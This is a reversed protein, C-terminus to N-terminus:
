KLILKKNNALEELGKDYINIIEDINTGIDEFIKFDFYDFRKTKFNSFQRNFEKLDSHKLDAFYSAIIGGYSYLKTENFGELIAASIYMSGDEDVKIQDVLESTRKYRENILLNDELTSLYEVSNFNDYVDLYYNKLGKLANEKFINNKILYDFFLKEYLMSYVEAYSSVWYYKSNQNISADNRDINDSVHGFEHVIIRMMNVDWIKPDNSLVVFSNKNIYDYLTYGATKIESDEYLDINTKFIKKNECLEKFRDAQNFEDNLFDSIIEFMQDEKLYLRKANYYGFDKDYLDIVRGSFMNHMDKDKIFNKINKKYLIKREKAKLERYKKNKLLIEETEEDIDGSTELLLAYFGELMEFIDIIRKSNTKILNEKILELEKKISEADDSFIKM